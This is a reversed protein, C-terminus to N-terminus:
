EIQAQSPDNLWKNQMETQLKPGAVTTPPDAALKELIKERASSESLKDFPIMAYGPFVSSFMGKQEKGSDFAM